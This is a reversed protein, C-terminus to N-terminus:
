DEGWPNILIWGVPMGDKASLAMVIDKNRGRLPLYFYDELRGGREALFADIAQQAHADRAAIQALDISRSRLQTLDSQYPAYLEARYELDKEGKTL